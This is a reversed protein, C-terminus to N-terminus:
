KAGGNLRHATETGANDESGSDVSPLDPHDVFLAHGLDFIREAIELRPDLTDSGQLDRHGDSGSVQELRVLFPEIPRKLGHTLKGRLFYAMGLRPHDGTYDILGLLLQAQRRVILARREADRKRREARLRQVPDNAADRCRLPVLEPLPKQGNEGSPPLLRDIARAMARYLTALHIHLRLRLRERTGASVPASTATRPSVPAHHQFGNM